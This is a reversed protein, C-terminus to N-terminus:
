KKQETSHEQSKHENGYIKGMEERYFIDFFNLKLKYSKFYKQFTLSNYEWKFQIKQFDAEIKGLPKGYTLLSKLQKDDFEKM